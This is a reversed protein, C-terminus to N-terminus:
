GFLTCQVNKLAHFLSNSSFPPNHLFVLPSIGLNQLVDRGTVNGKKNALTSRIENTEKFSKIFYVAPIDFKGSVPYANRFHPDKLAKLISQLENAEVKLELIL